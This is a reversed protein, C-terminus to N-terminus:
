NGTVMVCRISANRLQRVVPTTESKLTNHMVLLGLFNLNCEMQERKMRHMQHWTLRRDLVRHALALVRFGRMTFSRLVKAFNAPM